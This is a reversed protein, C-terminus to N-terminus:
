AEKWRRNRVIGGGPRVLIGTQGNANRLHAVASKAVRDGRKAARATHQILAIAAAKKKKNKGRGANLLKQAAATSNIAAVHKASFAAGLADEDFIQSSRVQAAMNVGESPGGGRALRSRM